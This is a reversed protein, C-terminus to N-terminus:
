RGKREPKERMIREVEELTLHDVALDHSIAMSDHQTVALLVRGHSLRSCYGRLDQIALELEVDVDTMKLPKM